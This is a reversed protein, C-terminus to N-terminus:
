EEPKKGTLQVAIKRARSRTDFDIFIIQQWRGLLLEGNLFPVTISTGILSSRLHAAGNDDGWTDNHAYDPGYPIYQSLLKPIDTKVLGPEYEVTTIGTTSGIASVLAQGETFGKSSIIDQVHPTIDIIDTHGRTNLKIFETIIEM